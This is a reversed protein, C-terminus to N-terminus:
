DKASRPKDTAVKTYTRRSWTMLIQLTKVPDYSLLVPLSRMLEDQKTM